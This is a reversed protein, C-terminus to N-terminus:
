RIKYAFFLAIDRAQYYNDSYGSFHFGRTQCFRTAPYNKTPLDATLSHLGDTKAQARAANILQTAIGQRRAGPIVTMCALYGSNQWPLTMMGLYGLLDRNNKGEMVWVTDCRHLIRRLTTQDHQYPVQMQRPLRTLRFTTSTEENGDRGSMQWVHDTMYSHDLAVIVDLDALEAHRINM